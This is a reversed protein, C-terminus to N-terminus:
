ATRGSAEHAAAQRLAALATKAAERLEAEDLDGSDRLADDPCFADVAFFLGDLIRFVETPRQVDDTKFLKLFRTEFETASFEARVFSDLLSLYPELALPM